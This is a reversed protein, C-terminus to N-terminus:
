KELTAQDATKKSLIEEAKSTEAKAHAVVKEASKIDAEIVQQKKAKLKPIEAQAEELAQTSGKLRTDLEGVQFRTTALSAASYFPYKLGRM